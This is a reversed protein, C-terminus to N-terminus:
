RQMRGQRSWGSPAAAALRRRKAAPTETEESSSDGGSTGAAQQQQQAELVRAVAHAENFIGDTGRKCVYCQQNSKADYDMACDACFVHRCYRTVVPERLQENCIPCTLGDDDDSSDSDDGGAQRREFDRDLDAANMYDERIHAYKCSDGYKCYGKMYYPKCINPKTDTITVTKITNSPPKPGKATKEGFNPDEAEERLLRREELDKQFADGIHDLAKTGTAATQFSTPDSAKGARGLQRRAAAAAALTDGVEAGEGAGSEEEDKKRVAGVNRRKKFM